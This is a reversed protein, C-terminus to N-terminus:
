ATAQLGPEGEPVLNDTRELPKKREGVAAPVTPPQHEPTLCQSGSSKRKLNLSFHGTKQSSVEALQTILPQWASPTSIEELM